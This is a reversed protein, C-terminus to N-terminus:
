KNDKCHKGIGFIMSTIKSKDINKNCFEQLSIEHEDHTKYCMACGKELDKIKILANKYLDEFNNAQETLLEYNNKLLKNRQLSFNLKCFVKMHIKILQTKTLQSYIEQLMEMYSDTEELDSESEEESDSGAKSM